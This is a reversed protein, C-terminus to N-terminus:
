SYRFRPIESRLQEGRGLGPLWRRAPSRLARVGLRARVAPRERDTIDPNEAVVWCFNVITRYSDARGVIASDVTESIALRDAIVVYHDPVGAMHGMINRTLWGTVKPM